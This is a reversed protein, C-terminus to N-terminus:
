VKIKRLFFFSFALLHMAVWNVDLKEYRVLLAKQGDIWANAREITFRREYLKEDFYNDREGGNRPNGKINAVIDKSELYDRVSQSDFGADANIFLGETNIDAQELFEFIAKLNKEIEYLDNHNGAMPPSMALMQGQNDCLFIANTTNAAKRGQFGRSEGGKTKSHSGDIQACSLDLKSKNKELINLWVRQFSGDKSWKNFYYYITNWSIEGEEFQEKIPIERWQCEIKLRKFILTIIKMLCFKSSFGRKGVSLFPIIWNIITDKCM